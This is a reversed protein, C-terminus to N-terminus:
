LEKKLQCYIVFLRADFELQHYDPEIHCCLKYFAKDHDKEKIHVLEHVILMRLLAEPAKKFASAIKIENKRVTRSGHQRTMYTHIGLANNIVHIKSDYQVKALPGTKKLYRNKIEMVYDYLAKDSQVPHDMSPYRKEFWPVFAGNTVMQEIQSVVQDPYGQIITLGDM